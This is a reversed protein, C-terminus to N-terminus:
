VRSLHKQYAKKASEYTVWLGASEAVTVVVNVISNGHATTENKYIPVDPFHKSIAWTLLFLTFDRAENEHPNPGPRQPKSREGTLVDAIFKKLPASIKKDNNVADAALETIARWATPDTKSEKVLAKVTRNRKLWEVYFGVPDRNIFEFAAKVQWLGALTRLTDRHDADDGGRAQTLLSIAPTGFIKKDFFQDAFARIEQGADPRFFSELATLLDEPGAADYSETIPDLIEPNELIYRDGPEGIYITKEDTMKQGKM